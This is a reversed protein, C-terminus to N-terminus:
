DSTFLLVYIPSYFSEWRQFLAKDMMVPGVSNRLSQRMVHVCDRLRPDSTLLGTKRLAQLRSTHTQPCYRLLLLLRLTQVWLPSSLWPSWRRAKRSPTSSNSRWTPCSGTFIFLVCRDTFVPRYFYPAQRLKHWRKWHAVFFVLRTNMPKTHLVFIHLNAKSTYLPSHLNQTKSLSQSRSQTDQTWMPAQRSISAERPTPQHRLGTPSLLLSRRGPWFRTPEVEPPPRQM